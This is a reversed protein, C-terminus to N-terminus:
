KTNYKYSAMIADLTKGVAAYSEERCQVNLSLIMNAASKPNPSPVITFITKLHRKPQDPVQIM